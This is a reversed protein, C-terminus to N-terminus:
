DLEYQSDRYLKNPVRRRKRPGEEIRAPATSVPPEVQAEPTGQPESALAPVLEPPGKLREPTRIALAITTGGQSGGALPPTCPVIVGKSSDEPTDPRVAQRGPVKSSKEAKDAIKEAAEAGTLSRASAKGHTKRAKAWKPKQAKDPLRTPLLDDQALQGAYNVLARNTKVLQSDFRAKALGTL